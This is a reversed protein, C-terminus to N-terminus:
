WQRIKELKSDKGKVSRTEVRDETKYEDPRPVPVNTLSLIGNELRFLPKDTGFFLPRGNYWVDNDYFIVIVLDPNYKKGENQFFLLEQDTSYGRVGANIVEFHRNLATNLNRKLIESFLDDFNVTWGEAFSDGIILIRYEDEDKAYPYEPGRVGKSNFYELTAYEDCINIAKTNPRIKWGLVPDYDCITNRGEKLECSNQGYPYLPYTYVRLLAEILIIALCASLLSIIINVGVQKM